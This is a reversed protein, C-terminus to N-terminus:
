AAELIKLIKVVPQPSIAYQRTHYKIELWGTCVCLFGHQRVGKEKIDQHCVFSLIYVETAPLDQLV